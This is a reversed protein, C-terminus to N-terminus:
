PTSITIFKARHLCQEMADSDPEIRAILSFVLNLLQHLPHRLELGRLHKTKCQSPKSVNDVFWSYGLIHM